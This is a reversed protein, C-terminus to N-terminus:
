TTSADRPHPRNKWAESAACECPVRLLGRGFVWGKDDCAVCFDVKEKLDAIAEAETEGTGVKDGLDYDGFTAHWIGPIVQQTKIPDTTQM